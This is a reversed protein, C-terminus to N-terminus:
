LHVSTLNSFWLRVMDSRTTDRAIPWLGNHTHATVLRRKGTPALGV